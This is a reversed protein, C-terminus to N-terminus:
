KSSSFNTNLKGVVFDTPFSIRRIKLQFSSFIRSATLKLNKVILCNFDCEPMANKAYANLQSPINLWLLGVNSIWFVKPLFCIYISPHVYLLISEEQPSYLLYLSIECIMLNLSFRRRSKITKSVEQVLFTNFDEIQYNKLSIKFLKLDEIFLFAFFNFCYEISLRNPRLGWVKKSKFYRIMSSDRLNRSSLRVPEVFSCIAAKFFRSSIEIILISFWSASQRLHFFKEEGESKRARKKVKKKVEKKM